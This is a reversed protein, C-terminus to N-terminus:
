DVTICDRIQQFRSEKIGPVNMIDEIKRFPGSQERYDLIAQATAPGVGASHGAGGRRGHQHKILTPTADPETPLLDDLGPVAEQREVETRTPIRILRSDEILYALNIADGAADETLGGAQEVLEYLYTGPVVQYIGPNEVAGVLYVPWAEPETTGAPTPSAAPRGTERTEIRIRDTKAPCTTFVTLLVIGSLLLVVVAAVRTPDKPM